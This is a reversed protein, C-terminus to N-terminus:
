EGSSNIRRQSHRTLDQPSKGVRSARVVPDDRFVAPGGFGGDLMFIAGAFIALGVLVAIESGFGKLLHATGYGAMLCVFLGFTVHAFESVHMGTIKKFM